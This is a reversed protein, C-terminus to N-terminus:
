LLGTDSCRVVCHLNQQEQQLEGSEQLTSIFLPQATYPFHVGHKSNQKAESKVSVRFIPGLIYM